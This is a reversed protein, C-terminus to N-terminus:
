LGKKIRRLTFLDDSLNQNFKIDSIEIDTKHKVSNGLQKSVLIEHAVWVNEVLEIKNFDMIKVYGGDKTWAKVKSVVYNDKRVAM